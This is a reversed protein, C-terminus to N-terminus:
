NPWLAILAISYCCPWKLECTNAHVMVIEVVWKRQELHCCTKMRARLDSSITIRDQDGSMSYIFSCVSRAVLYAVKIPSGLCSRVLCFLLLFLNSSCANPVPKHNTLLLYQAQQQCCTNSVARLLMCHIHGQAAHLPCLRKITPCCVKFVACNTCCLANPVAKHNLLVSLLLLCHPEVKQKIPLLCKFQLQQYPRMPHGQPLWSDAFVHNKAVISCLKCLGCILAIWLV